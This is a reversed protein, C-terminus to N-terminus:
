RNGLEALVADEAAYDFQGPQIPSPPNAREWRVTARIADTRAIPEHFGLESRIRASGASLHQDFNGPVRLPPPLRDAAVPVLEGHWGAVKAILAAWEIESFSQSDAVNYVRGAARDTVTALAIAAAVNEVYGRPSRWNAWNEQMVIARRGDDMRKLVGFMRHLRDGPGYVMPLRLVTGPLDPDGLIAREVPIKDYEDDLWGFIGQLVTIQAPPYTQLKTRLPSDELLPVPDPPGDELGYLISMARYVDMSSLAVIRHATGRFVDMLAKAQTGSSLIVDLVVDPRFANLMPACDALQRRDGTIIQVSPPLQGTSTARTFVAVDHGKGALARVVHPGIFGSGGIVLIRM